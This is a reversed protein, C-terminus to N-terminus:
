RIVIRVHPLVRRPTEALRYNGAEDIRISVADATATFHDLRNDSVLVDGDAGIRGTMRVFRRDVLAQTAHGTKIALPQAREVRERRRTFAHERSADRVVDLPRKLAIAQVQKLPPRHRSSLFGRKASAPQGAQLAPNAETSKYRM